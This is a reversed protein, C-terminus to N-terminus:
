RGLRVADGGRPWYWTISSPSLPVYTNVVQGLNKRLKQGSYSRFGRGTSLLELARGTTGARLRSCLLHNTYSSGPIHWIGPAAPNSSSNYKGNTVWYAMWIESHLWTMLPAQSHEQDTKHFFQELREHSITVFDTQVFTAPLCIVYHKRWCRWTALIHFLWKWPSPPAM